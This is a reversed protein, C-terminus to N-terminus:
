QGTEEIRESIDSIEAVSMIVSDLKANLNNTEVTGFEADLELLPRMADAKM